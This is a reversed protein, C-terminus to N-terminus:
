TRSQSVGYIAAWWTGRGQSEGSLFVPTPQRKRRWQMFTFLSLAAPTPGTIPDCDYQFGKLMEGFGEPYFELEGEGIHRSHDSHKYGESFHLM